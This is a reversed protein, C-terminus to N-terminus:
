RGTHGLQRRLEDLEARMREQSKQIDILIGYVDKADSESRATGRMDMTEIKQNAASLQRDMSNLWSVGGYIFPASVTVLAVILSGVFAGISKWSLRVIDGNGNTM